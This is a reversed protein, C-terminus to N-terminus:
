VGHRRAEALQTKAKAIRSPLNQVYVFVLPSEIRAAWTDGITSV